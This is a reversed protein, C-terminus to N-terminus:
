KSVAPVDFLDLSYYYKKIRALQVFRDPNAQKLRRGHDMADKLNYFLDTDVKGKPTVTEICWAYCEEIAKSITTEM